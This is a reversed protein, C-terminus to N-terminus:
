LLLIHMYWPLHAFNPPIFRVRIYKPNTNNRLLQIVPKLIVLLHCGATINVHSEKGGEEKTKWWKQETSKMIIEYTSRANLKAKKNFNSNDKGGPKNPLAGYNLM